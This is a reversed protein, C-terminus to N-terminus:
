ATMAGHERLAGLLPVLPLGLISFYDGEIREFLQAGLGELQYCGVCQLVDEAARSLYGELFGDSFKRMTLSCCDVRRWLPKRDRVLVAATLLDHRRGRLRRLLRAAEATTACKGIAEGELSLIQDAGLVIRGPSRASIQLAKMEALVGALNGHGVETGIASARVGAEDVAAPQREFAVGAAELLRARIPSASALVLPTM